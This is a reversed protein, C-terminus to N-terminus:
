HEEALYTNLWEREPDFNEDGAELLTLARGAEQRADAHKGQGVLAETLSTRWLGERLTIVTTDKAQDLINRLKAEADAFREADLDADALLALGMTRLEFSVNAADVYRELGERAERERDADELCQYVLAAFVWAQANAAAVPSSFDETAKGRESARVGEVCDDAFARTQDGCEIGMGFGAAMCVAHNYMRDGPSLTSRALDAAEVALEFSREYEGTRNTMGATNTLATLTRPDDSGYADRLMALADRSIRLADETQSAQDFVGSLVLMAEAVEPHAPGYRAKLGEIAQELQPRADEIRGAAVWTRGCDLRSLPTPGGPATEALAIAEDCRSAAEPLERALARTRALVVLANARERVSRGSRTALSVGLEAWRLAEAPETRQGIARALVQAAESAQVDLGVSLAANLADQAPQEADAPTDQELAARAALMGADVIARPDNSTKAQDLITMAEDYARSFAGRALTVEAGRIRATLPSDDATAATTPRTGSQTCADPDVADGLASAISDLADSDLPTSLLADLRQRQSELCSEEEIRAPTRTGECAAAWADVWDTVRADIRARTAAGLAGAYPADASEFAKSMADARGSSWTTAIETRAQDPCPPLAAAQPRMSWGIGVASALALGAVAGRTRRRGQDIGTAIADAFAQMSAYRETAEFRLARYLVERIWGPVRHPAQERHSPVGADSVAPAFKSPRRGYILEFFTVGLAYQDAKDTPEVGDFQEPAMYAPTGALTTQLDDADPESPQVRVHVLGFDAVKARGDNGVLINSPKVDRHVFGAEHAAALGRAATEIHRAVDAFSRPEAKGWASLTGGEALEMAIFAREGVSGIEYVTLLDPHDLAAMAQAEKRLRVLADASASQKLLKLALPRRLDPDTALYVEGFAGEGLLKEVEFRGVQEPAGEQGTMSEVLDSLRRRGALDLDSRPARPAIDSEEFTEATPQEDRSAM